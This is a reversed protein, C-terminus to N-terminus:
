VIKLFGTWDRDDLVPFGAQRKQRLSRRKGLGGVGGNLRVLYYEGANGGWNYRFMIETRGAAGLFVGEVRKGGVYHAYGEVPV